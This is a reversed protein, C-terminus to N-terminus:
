GCAVQGTTAECAVVRTIEIGGGVLKLGDAKLVKVTERNLTLKATRTSKKM